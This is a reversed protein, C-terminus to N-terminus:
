RVCKRYNYKKTLACKEHVIKM